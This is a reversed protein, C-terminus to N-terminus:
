ESELLKNYEELCGFDEAVDKLISLTNFCRKSFSISVLGNYTRKLESNKLIYEFIPSAESNLIATYAHENLCDVWRLQNGHLVLGFFQLFANADHRDVTLCLHRVTEEAGCHQAWIIDDSRVGALLMQLIERISNIALFPNETKTKIFSVM